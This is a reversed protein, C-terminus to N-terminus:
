RNYKETITLLFFKNRRKLQKWQFRWGWNGKAKGPVNMRSRADLELVDQLPVIAIKAVSAWIREIAYRVAKKNRVGFYSRVLKKEDGKVTKLWGLTTNNDHTGTYAVFNTTYNHPLNKNAADTTFAFQFVKMGPLQFHDRLQEVEPTIVGLDEAILPLAGVQEKFKELLRYGKAPKWKGDKATKKNAPVAWFSELGRFHDIRVFDFLNLNFHLRALWWDFGREELRQWNFVPNGWLQGTKSFYDPPVGGVETPMLDTDLLFLDPNGWVDPSDSSVYLPLDGFIRVGKSAAYQKLNFWQRFFLFQLFKQFDIEQDLEKRLKQLANKDRFKISQDWEQWAQGNFHKKAAVFLSYDNLWWAHETLFQEYDNKFKQSEELKFFVFAKRLVPYKWNEIKEFDVRKKSFSPIKAIAKRELLGENVILELDILLPNGAFASYCQYPSGGYGVPGLPLIQWIKQKTEALFDVFRFANTGLTGVGENGPLSTIHLLVGSSREGM